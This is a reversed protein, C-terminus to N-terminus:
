ARVRQVHSVSGLWRDLALRILVTASLMVVIAVLVGGVGLAQYGVLGMGWCILTWSIVYMSTVRRSCYGLLEVVVPLRALGGRIRHIGWLLLLNLGVLYAIGGAGLHFFDVFHVSPWAAVLVGGVLALPLGLARMGRFLRDEDGELELFWAGFAMGVLIASFWPFVPFYVDFETGWLLDLGYDLGPVGVRFGRLLHTGVAFGAAWALLAGKGPTLRRIIGMLILCVGALQLIDGTLLLYVLQDTSLPRSWGYAAIFADPVTGAAIPVLFKLANMMYGVGLLYLGRRMSGAVSRDRSLMFSVGMAVLFSATGKGLVHLAMGLWSDRQTAVDGYLWLTHVLIMLIVSGGRGLDIALIRGRGTGAEGPRSARESM